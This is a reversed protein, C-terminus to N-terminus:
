ERAEERPTKKENEDNNNNNDRACLSLSLSLTKPFSVAAAPSQFIARRMCRLLGASSSSSSTEELYLLLLLLRERSLSLSLSPDITRSPRSIRARLRWRPFCWHGRDPRAGLLLLLLFLISTEIDRTSRRRRRPTLRPPRQRRKRRAFTDSHSNYGPSNRAGPLDCTYYM